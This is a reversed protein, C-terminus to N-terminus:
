RTVGARPRGSRWAQWAGTSWLAWAILVPQFVLRILRARDTDLGFADTGEVYQAINGPFIVVFFVAVLWGVVIRYRALFLLTLGLAIEVLGSIVVVLDAQIPFWEPVQAQFEGRQATLHAIGAAVLFIGLLRRGATRLTEGMFSGYLADSDARDAFLRM